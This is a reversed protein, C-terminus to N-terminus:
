LKDPILQYIKVSKNTFVLTYMKTGDVIKNLETLKKGTADGITIFLMSINNQRLWTKDTIRDSTIDYHKFLRTAISNDFPVIESNNALIVSGPQTHQKVYGLAAIQDPNVFNTRSAIYSNQQTSYLVAQVVLLAIITTKFFTSRRTSVLISRLGVLVIIFLGPWIMYLMRSFYFNIGVYSLLTLGIGVFVWVLAPTFERTNEKKLKQRLIFVIGIIIFLINIEKLNSIYGDFGIRQAFRDGSLADSNKYNYVLMSSFLPWLKISVSAIIVGVIIVIKANAKKIFSWWKRVNLCLLLLAAIAVFVFSLSRHAFYLNVMIVALFLWAWPRFRQCYFIFMILLVSIFGLFNAITSSNFLFLLGYFNLGLIMALVQASRGGTLRRVVIGLLILMEMVLIVQYITFLPYEITLGTMRNLLVLLISNIPSEYMPRQAYPNYNNQPLRGGQDIIYHADLIYVSSDGGPPSGPKLGVCIISTALLLGIALVVGYLPSSKHKKSNKSNNM